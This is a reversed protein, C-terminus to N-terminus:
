QEAAAALAACRKLDAACVSTPITYAQPHRPPNRKSLGRYRVGFDITTASVRGKNVIDNTFEQDQYEIGAVLFLVPKIAWHFNLQLDIYDRNDTVNLGGLTETKQLLVGYDLGFRQSFNADGYVRAERRVVEYGNSSPYVDRALDANLGGGTENRKKFGVSAVYDTTAGATVRSQVNVVQYDSRLVGATMLFSWLQNIPRTFQGEITVTHFDNTNVDANYNDVSMVASIQTQQDTNRQLTASYRTDSFGTRFALDGGSYTVSSNGVDIRLTNRPSLTFSLYPSVYYFDRYQNIFATRGTDGTDQNQTDLNFNITGFEAVAIRQRRYDGDFGVKVTRWDYEGYGQFYYDEGNLNDNSSDLYRHFVVQPQFLLVSRQNYTAMQVSMDLATSSANQQPLSPVNDPYYYPNTESRASLWLNPVFDWAAHAVQAAFLGVLWLGASAARTRVRGNTRKM